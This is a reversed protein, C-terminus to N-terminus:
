YLFLFFYVELSELVHVFDMTVFSEREVHDQEMQSTAIKKLENYLKLMDRDNRNFYSDKDPVNLCMIGKPSRVRTIGMYLVHSIWDGVDQLDFILQHFELGQLSSITVAYALEFPMYTRHSFSSFFNQYKSMDFDSLDFEECVMDIESIWIFSDFMFEVRATSLWPNQINVNAGIFSGIFNKPFTRTASNCSADVPRKIRVPCGIGVTIQSPIDLLSDLLKNQFSVVFRKDNKSTDYSKFCFRSEFPTSNLGKVNYWDVLDIKCCAVPINSLHADTVRVSSGVKIFNLYEFVTSESEDTSTGLRLVQAELDANWNGERIQVNV